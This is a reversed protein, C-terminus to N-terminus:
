RCYCTFLPNTVCDPTAVQETSIFNQSCIGTDHEKEVFTQGAALVWVQWPLKSGSALIELVTHSCTHWAYHRLSVLTTEICSYDHM